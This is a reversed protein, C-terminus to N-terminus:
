NNYGWVPTFNGPRGWCSPAKNLKTSKITNNNKSDIVFVLVARQQINSLKSLDLWFFNM